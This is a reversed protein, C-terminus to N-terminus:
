PTGRSRAAGQILSKLRKKLATLPLSAEDSGDAELLRYGTKRAQGDADVSYKGQAKELMRYVPDPSTLSLVSNAGSYSEPLPKLFLLVTEGDTFVPEDSVALSLDGVRGGETQVVLRRSSLRGKMSEQVEITTLTVILSNDLSWSCRVEVVRGLVITEAGATLASLPVKIMLGSAASGLLLLGLGAAALWGTVKILPKKLPTM